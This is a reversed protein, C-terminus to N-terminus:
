SCLSCHSNTSSPNEPASPFDEGPPEAVSPKLEQPAQQSVDSAEADQVRDRRVRRTVNGLARRAGQVGFRGATVLGPVGPFDSLREIWNGGGNEDGEENSEVPAPSSPSLSLSPEVNKNKRKVLAYFTKGDPGRMKVKGSFVPSDQDDPYVGVSAVEIVQANSPIISMQGSKLNYQRRLQAATRGQWRSADVHLGYQKAQAEAMARADTFAQRTQEDDPPIGDIDHSLMSLEGYIFPAREDPPLRGLKERYYKGWQDAGEVTRPTRLRAGSIPGHEPYAPSAPPTDATDTPVEPTDTSPPLTDPYTDTVDSHGQIDDFIQLAQETRDSSYGEGDAEASAVVPEITHPFGSVGTPIPRSSNSRPKPIPKDALKELRKQIDSIGLYPENWGRQRALENKSEAWKTPPQPITAESM